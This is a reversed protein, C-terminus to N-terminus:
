SFRMGATIEPDIVRSSLGFFPYGFLSDIRGHQQKISIGFNAGTGLRIM